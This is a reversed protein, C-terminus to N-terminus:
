QENTLTLKISFNSATQSLDGYGLIEVRHIWPVSELHAIWKSFLESDHSEGSVLITNTNTEIPQREKIRKLLPQYNLESLTMSNPLGQIITNVYFSSKSVSGKLMDEVMKQSKSVRESLGLIYQKNTENIQSTQQLRNVANFYHNFVFFNLLLMMLIFVLGSKFFLVFFRSQKFGLGLSDKLGEFNTSSDYLNLVSNLAGSFSLLQQNSIQLGNIDYHSIAEMNIHEMSVITTDDFSIHANSSSINEVRVFRSICSAISNGFSFNIVSVGKEKYSVILEEVYGKRCISVFHTKGQTLVEYFFDELQINPYAKFVLKVFESPESDITKTLVHDNNIVLFIPLQKPLKPIVQDLSVEQFSTEMDLKNKSKKLVTAYITEHGNKSTHEVGCFRNGFELYSKFRGFM